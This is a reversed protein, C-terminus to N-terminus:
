LSFSFIIKFLGEAKWQELKRLVNDIRQPLHDEGPCLFIHQSIRHHEILKVLFDHPLSLILHSTTLIPIHFSLIFHSAIQHSLQPLLNDLDSLNPFPESLSHYTSNSHPSSFHKRDSPLEYNFSVHLECCEVVPLM